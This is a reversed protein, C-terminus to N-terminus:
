VDNLKKVNIKKTAYDIDIKKKRIARLVLKAFVDPLRSDTEIHGPLVSSLLEYRDNNKTLMFDLLLKEMDAMEFANLLTMPKIYDICGMSEKYYNDEDFALTIMLYRGHDLKWAFHTSPQLGETILEICLEPTVFSQYLPIDKM